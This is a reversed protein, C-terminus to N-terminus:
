SENEGTKTEGIEKNEEEKKEEKFSELFQVETINELRRFIEEAVRQKGLIYWERMVADQPIKFTVTSDSITVDGEVGTILLLIAGAKEEPDEIVERIEYDYKIKKGALPHNFDVIARRGIVKEVIGTRNGIRVSQGIEPRERFKTISIAEVLDPNREGFAKEPPVEISGSYGPEKGIIDEELGKVIHGAGIIITIDGYRGGESYIGEKRALEEDTTDIVEGTDLRATFSLKVFDGEKIAM